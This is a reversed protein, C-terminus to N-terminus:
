DAKAKAIAKDLIAEVVAFYARIIAAEIATVEENEM